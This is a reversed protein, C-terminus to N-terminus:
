CCLELIAQTYIKGMTLLEDIVAFEDAGHMHYDAGDRCAGFAVGNELGHVYTGGGIALCKGKEGTWAEYAALLTQVFPTDAPVYHVPRMPRDELVLGAKACAAIAPLVLTEHNACIPTRSDFQAVLEGDQVACMNLSLTLPGSLEDAQQVGLAKGLWDGHPFCGALARLIEGDRGKLPLQALTYLLATLANNASEPFAAHGGEGRVFLKTQGDLESLLQETGTELACARCIPEFEAARLGEFIAEATDPVVNLKFGATVSVIGADGSFPATVRGMFGGKELNIVPFDGDPSVTVPAEPESAYYHAIDGGGCEEDAGLILRCRRKMPVGLSRVCAMAYLAAMSPGKDDITGRGYLRGDREVPEFPDCVTWNNAVPVVDLHALIDLGPAEPGLDACLVYNEMNKVAMGQRACIEEACVLARFPGEGFPKGEVTEGRDSPIRVLTKIDELLAERHEAFFAEIKDHYEEFM